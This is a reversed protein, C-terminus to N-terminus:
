FNKESDLLLTVPGDNVLEVAMDAQFIGTAVPIGRQKVLAVAQDFLEKAMDPPAASSFSPRKGKRCDGYLTFQSVLLIEGGVDEVSLNMKGEEDEFIRLGAIKEVIWALDSEGDEGGVGLFVLLGHGIEGVLVDNVRVSARKVRQVVARM